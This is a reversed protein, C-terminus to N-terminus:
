FSRRQPKVCPFSLVGRIQTQAMLMVLRDVGLGLGGTPPMGTELAYLFDEDVEMAEPDGAAAKLSQETLRERQILPDALESYACGMEMGNIVLDWREALGPLSRHPAALPSTEAPFDTYFTPEVTSAEVLEGYLEEIIAGPGMGEHIRVGHVRALEVLDEFDTQMDIRRNLAESLAECVSVVRWPGSVDRLTRESSTKSGLPLLPSGFAAVAADKILRETLQRMQVYDAHPRYAELVTFEPNHTADAGENRFDRGLEYVPGSGGVVLRKLYLEPAIRLTLDEGYANIYTRFPRASAGGHVTHLIPTEVELFGESDLRARLAKIVATRLRLNQMQDPHVILDTSRRRLRAEPDTFAEFPIPHLSKATMRWSSAILSPTGTRSMGLTGTVEVLDGADLAQSALRLLEEGVFRRELITQLTDGAETLTIFLVGGHDRLTRVRGSVTCEKDLINKNSFIALAEPVSLIGTRVSASASNSVGGLPYPDMGADRLIQLHRIRHQTQQSRPVEPATEAAEVHLQHLRELEEESLVRHSTDDRRASLNPLFGEAMGAAFVVNVFALTPECALYRPVWHPAFKLNFRYLRRLQLFRDLIGLSRSAFRNWASAGVRDAAAFIHGFMAFNLSVRRVGMSPARDMLSAVMFEVVGNPAKPARRMVDLSLGTPGWPVFSLMAVMSGTEDHTSVVLTSGDAPDNLRNLAMSFGREVRGHRWASIDHRLQQKQQENLESYRRIQVTYGGRRVRQVAQRVALMSTDNLTFRDTELVAEEGMQLISLGARSYARAGAESVSLAAPVWGYRRAQIMWQEIAEPWSHPDGVPDSSALCVSGVTRYTIAARGDPSFIVQKDRRTAFYSLSDNAGYRQLLARIRLEKEGDWEDPTRYGRALLYLAGVLSFGYGLSAIFGLTDSAWSAPQIREAGMGHMLIDWPTLNRLAPWWGVHSLYWLLATTVTIGGIATAVAGAWSLRGIHAPFASRISILFPVLACALVASLTDVGSSLVQDKPMIGAPFFLIVASHLALLAGLAEFAIVAYLAARKRAILGSVLVIMTIASPLTHTSPINLLDATIEWWTFGRGHRLPSIIWAFSTILAAFSYVGIVWRASTEAYQSAPAPQPGARRTRRPVTRPNDTPRHSM